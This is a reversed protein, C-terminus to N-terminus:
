KSAGHKEVFTHIDKRIEVISEEIKNKRGIFRIDDRASFNIIFSGTYIEGFADNYVVSGNYITEQEEKSMESRENLFHRIEEGPALYRIGKRIFSHQSLLKKGSYCMFDPQVKIKINFAPGFGVNKLVMEVLSARESFPEIITIVNPSNQLKRLRKSEGVLKGTMLVYVITIIVLVITAIALM